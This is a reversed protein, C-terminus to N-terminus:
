DARQRIFDIVEDDPIFIVESCPVSRTLEDYFSLTFDLGSPSYFPPFGCAFLRVAADARKKSVLENKQGHRLFFIHSLPAQAACSIEAEGHWPTGYMWVSNNVKRLIIRDDSLIKVGEHKQWLRTMTTKGAGSHGVFLFGKGSSDIVGSSHVEVGKGLALQNLMLLEDLPYEMPYLPRASDFFPRHLRVEGETFGSNFSAEKYPLSGYYPSSFRFLYDEGRRFLKWLAGSDFLKEGGTEGSIEGLSARVRVDPLAGKVVFKETTEEVRLQMAPDDCTLAITIGAISICITERSEHSSSANSQLRETMSAENM